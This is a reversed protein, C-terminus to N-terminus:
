GGGGGLFFFQNQWEEKPSKEFLFEFIWHFNQKVFTQLEQFTLREQTQCSKLPFPTGEYEFFELFTKPKTQFSPYWNQTKVIYQEQYIQLANKRKKKKHKLYVSYNGVNLKEGMQTHINLLHINQIKSFKPFRIKDLKPIWQIPNQEANYGKPAKEFCFLENIKTEHFFTEHFMNTVNYVFGNVNQVNSESEVYILQVKDKKSTKLKKHGFGNENSSM